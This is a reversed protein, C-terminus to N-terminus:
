RRLSHRDEEETIREFASPERHLRAKPDGFTIMHFAPADAVPQSLSRITVMHQTALLNRSLIPAM